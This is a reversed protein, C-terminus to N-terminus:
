VIEKTTSHSTRSYRQLVRLLTAVGFGTAGDSGGRHRWAPGAIDLHAWPIEEPVFEGLFLAATLARGFREGPFNKVDAVDSRVAARYRQAYPLRWLPEGAEAAAALVIGATQDDRAILGAIEEGLAVICSETLTAIDLIADPRHSVALALADALIVRGEFDSNLIEVTRGGHTRVVDGIRVADPGPMNEVLPLFADVRVQLGLRGAVSMVALVAAAGAKDHKMTMLAEPSKLSLGGSDFVVGKGVLAVSPVDGGPDYGLQVLCPPESSGRGIALIGGFGGAELDHVGLRAHTLGEREAIEEALEAFRRPPLCGAPENVLDRALEVAESALAAETLAADLEAEGAVGLLRIRRLSRARRATAHGAYRYAGHAISEVVLRALGAQDTGPVVLGALDVAVEIAEAVTAGAARMTTALSELDLRARDGLGALVEVGSGAPLVLTTGPTGDFGACDLLGDGFSSRWRGLEGHAAGRVVLQLDDGSGGYVVEIPPTV